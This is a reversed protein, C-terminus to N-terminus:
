EPWVPKRRERLATMGEVRDPTDWAEGFLESELEMADYLPLGLGENVARKILRVSNASKGSYRGLLRTAAPGLEDVTEVVEDVLGIELAAAANVPDGSLIMRLAKQRGILRPLRQTGGWGPLIGLNIEPLGLRASAAAIRFDCALALELGGGLTFGGIAAVTLCPMTTLLDFVARGEHAFGVAQDPPLFALDSEIDAGTSFVKPYGSTVIVGRYHRGAADRLTDGFERLLEANLQNRENDTRRITLTLLRAGEDVTATVHTM